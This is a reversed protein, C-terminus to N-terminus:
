VDRNVVGNESNRTNETTAFVVLCGAPVNLFTVPALERAGYSEGDLNAFVFVGDFGLKAVTDKGNGEVFFFDFGGFDDWDLLGLWSM